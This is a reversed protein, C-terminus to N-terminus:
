GRYFGLSKLLGVGAHYFVIAGFRMWVGVAVLWALMVPYRNLFFKRYFRLMGKHKHWAVFFPRAHSCAGQYHLVAVDPVFVIKWNKQRFRMCWDLDECHLFYGEDWDGVEDVAQRRVLMLAGSIAEVDIPKDPLPQRHLHFDYFFDPFFRSLRYLGLARVLARWPTPMARRSGGQESGDPYLLRGGVMGINPDSEIVQQLRAVVGSNMLCDPNIFLVFPTATARMGLNCGSAFGRNETLRIIELRESDPFRRELEVISADTSANDVVVVRDTQVMAECVCNSLLIGANYNVIVTSVQAQTNM